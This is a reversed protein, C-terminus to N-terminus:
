SPGGCAQLWDRLFQILEEPPQLRMAAATPRPQARVLVTLGHGNLAHFADEDTLDDGLYAIAANPGSEQLLTNVANGKNVGRVRLEMGGDFQALDLTETALVENWATLITNRLSAIESANSGRWHVAVSGPKMEMHPELGAQRVADAAQLLLTESNGPLPEASYSGDPKLRELGHSGWIEPHPHVGSLVLVERAARGSIMVVRTGAERIQSLLPPIEPYPFAQQRDMSFPALTGDYDVLLARTSATAVREMFSSYALTSDSTKM